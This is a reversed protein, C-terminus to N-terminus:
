FLLMGKRERWKICIESVTVAAAFVVVVIVVVIAAAADAAIVFVVVAVAIASPRPQAIGNKIGEIEPGGNGLFEKKGLFERGGEQPIMTRM